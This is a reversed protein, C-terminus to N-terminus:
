STIVAQAQTESMIEILPYESALLRCIKIAHNDEDCICIVRSNETNMGIRAARRLRFEANDESIKRLIILTEDEGSRHMLDLLATIFSCVGIIAFFILLIMSLIYM